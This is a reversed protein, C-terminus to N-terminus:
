GRAPTPYDRLRAQAGIHNNPILGVDEILRVLPDDRVTTHVPNGIQSQRCCRESFPKALVKIPQYNKGRRILQNGVPLQYWGYYSRREYGVQTLHRSYATPWIGLPNLAFEGFDHALLTNDIIRGIVPQLVPFVPM